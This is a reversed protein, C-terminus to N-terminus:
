RALQEFVALADKRNGTKAFQKAKRVLSTPATGAKGPGVGPGITPTSPKKAPADPKGIKLRQYEAAMRLVKLHRKDVIQGIEQDTFGCARATEAMGSLAAEVAAETPFGESAVFESFQTEVLARYEQEMSARQEASLAERESRVESIRAEFAEYQKRLEWAAAPNKAVEADWDIKPLMGTLREELAQTKELLKAREESAERKIRLAEQQEARAQNQWKHFTAFRHASDQLQELTMEFVEPKGDIVREFRYVEPAGEDPSDDSEAADTPNAPSQGADAQGEDQSELEDPPAVVDELKGSAIAEFVALPSNTEDSM